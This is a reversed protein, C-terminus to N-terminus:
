NNSKDDPANGKGMNLEMSFTQKDKVGFLADSSHGLVWFSQFIDSLSAGVNCLTAVIIIPIFSSPLFFSLSIGIITILIVPALLSILYRTKGEYVGEPLEVYWIFKASHFSSARRTFIWDASYHILEHFVLVVYCVIILILFLVAISVLKDLITPGAHNFLITQITNQTLDLNFIHITTLLYFSLFILAVGLQASRTFRKPDYTAKPKYGIPLQKNGM